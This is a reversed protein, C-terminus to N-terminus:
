IPKQKTRVWSKLLVLGIWPQFAGSCPPWELNWYFKVSKSGAAARSWANRCTAGDARGGEKM